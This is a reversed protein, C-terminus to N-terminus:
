FMLKGNRVMRFYSCYSRWCNRRVMLAVPGVKFVYKQIELYVVEYDRPLDHVAAVHARWAQKDAMLGM